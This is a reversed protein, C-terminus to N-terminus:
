GGLDVRTLDDAADSTYLLCFVFAAHDSPFSPDHSAPLLLVAAHHVFPRHRPWLRSVVQNVALAGLTSGATLMASRQWRDRRHRPGPWFWLAVFTAVFALPGYRALVTFIGDAIPSRGALGNALEFIWGDM